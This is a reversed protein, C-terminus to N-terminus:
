GKLARVYEKLPEQNVKMEGKNLGAWLIMKKTQMATVATLNVV